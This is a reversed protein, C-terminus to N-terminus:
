GVQSTRAWGACANLIFISVAQLEFPFPREHRHQGGDTTILFTGPQETYEDKRGGGWAWGHQADIFRLNDLQEPQEMEPPKYGTIKMKIKGAKRQTAWTAGGDGTYLSDRDITLAWGM